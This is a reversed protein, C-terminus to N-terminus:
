KEYAVGKFLVEDVHGFSHELYGNQVMFDSFEFIGKVTTTYEMDKLYDLTEEPSMDYIESLLTAAEQPHVNIFTIAENLTTFFIDYLEKNNDHFRLTSAGVIFSFDKGMAEKGSLIQHMGEIKLEQNLYPPATFHASVDQKVILAQMGDPHSMSILQNDFRQADGLMKEAAMSLLIHQISGPQPLAIRDQPSLDHLTKIDEKYTILGIPSCTLGTSIKWEMGKEWGILFPPIAMFGVDVDGVIMSERIAATNVLKVWNIITDEPLKKELMQREKMVQIPAYALGYQEAISIDNIEQKETCGINFFIVFLCIILFVIYKIRCRM